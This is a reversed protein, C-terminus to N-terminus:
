PPPPKRARRSPTREALREVQRQNVYIAAFVGDIIDLATNLDDTSPQFLRHTVAHGADLVISIADRQVLSVWGGAQFADLNKLFTGHDGVKTIMMQELLARIGMAALRLQGGHVAQYIECLLRGLKGEEGDQNAVLLLWEPERRAV